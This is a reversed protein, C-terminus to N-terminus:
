PTTVHIWNKEWRAECRSPSPGRGLSPARFEVSLTAKLMRKPLPNPQRVRARRKPSSVAGFLSAFPALSHWPTLCRSTLRIATRSWTRGVVMPCENDFCFWGAHRYLLFTDKAFAALDDNMHSRDEGLEHYQEEYNCTEGPSLRCTAARGRHQRGRRRKRTDFTSGDHFALATVARELNRRGSGAAVDQSRRSTLICARRRGLLGGTGHVAASSDRNTRNFWKQPACGSKVLPVVAWRDRAAMSLIAPTWMRAHSDGISSSTDGLPLHQQRRRSPSAQRRGLPRPWRSGGGHDTGALAV